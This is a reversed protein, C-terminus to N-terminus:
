RDKEPPVACKQLVRGRNFVLPPTAPAKQPGRRVLASLEAGNHEVTVSVCHNLDQVLEGFLAPAAPEDLRSLVVSTHAYQCEPKNKAVTRDRM